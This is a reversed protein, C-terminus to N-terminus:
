LERACDYGGDMETAIRLSLSDDAEATTVVITATIQVALENLTEEVTAYGYLDRLRALAAWAEETLEVSRRVKGADREAERRATQEGRLKELHEAPFPIGAPRGTKTM